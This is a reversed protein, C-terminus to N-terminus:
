SQESEAEEPEKFLEDPPRALARYKYEPIVFVWGTVRDNLDAAEQRVDIDDEAETEEPEGPEADGKQRILDEDVSFSLTAYNADETRASNIHAILGDYTRITTRTQPGPLPFEDAPRVDDITLKNLFTGMNNLVFASEPEKGEPIDVITFDEEGQKRVLGLASGDPYDIVTRSIRDNAVDLLDKEIWDRPDASVDLEGEVLLAQDSGPKRIYLGRSGGPASSKRDRGVILTALIDGRDDKLTLLHSSANEQEPDEVGLETYRSPNRTRGALVYLEVTGLVLRRLRDFRAPYHYAERVAWAGDKKEIRVLDEGSRIEITAVDNVRTALDPFLQQKETGSKPARSQSSIVAAVVIVLTVISLALLSKKSM